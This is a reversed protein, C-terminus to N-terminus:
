SDVDLIEKVKKMLKNKLTTSHITHLANAKKLAQNHQITTFLKTLSLVMQSRYERCLNNMDKIKKYGVHLDNQQKQKMMSELSMFCFKWAQKQYKTLEPKSVKENITQEGVTEDKM